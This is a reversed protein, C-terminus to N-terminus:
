IDNLIKALAKVYNKEGYTKILLERFNKEDKKRHKILSVLEAMKDEPKM